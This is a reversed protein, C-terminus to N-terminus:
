VACYRGDGRRNLEAHIDEGQFGEPANGGDYADWLKRMGALDYESFMAELEAHFQNRRQIARGEKIVKSWREFFTPEM